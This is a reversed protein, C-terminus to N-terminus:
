KAEIHLLPQQPFRNIISAKLPLKFKNIITNAEDIAFAQAHEGYGVKYNLFMGENGVNISTLKFQVYFESLAAQIDTERTLTEQESM